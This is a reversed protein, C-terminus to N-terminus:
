PSGRFGELEWHKANRVAENFAAVFAAGSGDLEAMVGDQREEVSLVGEQSAVWQFIERAPSGVISFRTRSPLPEIDAVLGRADLRVREEALALLRRSTTSYILTREGPGLAWRLLAVSAPENGVPGLSELESVVLNPANSALAAALMLDRAEGRTLDQTSRQRGRAEAVSDLAFRQADAVQRSHGFLNCWEGVRMGSPFVVDLPVSAVDGMRADKIHGKKPTTVHACWSLLEETLGHAGTVGVVHGAWEGRLSARILKGSPGEFRIM